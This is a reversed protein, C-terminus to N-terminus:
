TILLELFLILLVMKMYKLEAEVNLEHLIETFGLHPYSVKIVIIIIIIIIILIM